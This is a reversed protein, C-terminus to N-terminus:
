YFFDKEPLSLTGRDVNKLLEDEAEIFPDYWDAKKRAWELWSKLEDTSTQSNLNKLELEDIYNRLNVTKHWREAKDLIRKFASLDEEQKREFERQIREKEKREKEQRQNELRIEMREKAALELHAIIGSIHEELKLKGDKWERGPYNHLQFYLVDTAIHKTMPYNGDMQIERRSKERLLVKFDIEGIVIRTEEYKIIVSHGRLYLCKILTDWFCLARSINKVTVGTDLFDRQSYVFGVRDWTNPKQNRLNSKLDTVLRHPNILKEPVLLKDALSGGIENTLMKLPSVEGTIKESNEDRLTLNIEQDESSTPLPTQEIKKGFKLKTWYGSKPLPINLRICDKRLGNDSINYKKSLTLIPESWVLDYLQKRTFTIKNDM